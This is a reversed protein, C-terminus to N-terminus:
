GEKMLLLIIGVVVLGAYFFLEMLQKKKDL